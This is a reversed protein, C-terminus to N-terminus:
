QTKNTIIWPKLSAALSLNKEDPLLFGSQLTVNAMDNGLKIPSQNACQSSMEDTVTVPLSDSQMSDTSNVFIEDCEVNVVSVSVREIMPVFHNIHPEGGDFSSVTWLINLPRRCTTLGRGIVLKTLPSIQGPQFQIPWLTQIGKQCGLSVALVALMSCYTNM